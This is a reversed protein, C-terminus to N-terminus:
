YARNWRHGDWVEGYDIFARVGAREKKIRKRLARDVQRDEEDMQREAEDMKYNVATAIIVVFVIALFVVILATALTM